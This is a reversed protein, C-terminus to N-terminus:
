AQIKGGPGVSAVVDHNDLLSEKEFDEGDGTGRRTGDSMALASWIVGVAIGVISLGIFLVEVSNYSGFSIAPVSHADTPCGLWHKASCDYVMLLATTLGACHCWYHDYHLRM